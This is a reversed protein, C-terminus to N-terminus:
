VWICNGLRCVWNGFYFMDCDCYYVVVDDKGGLSRCIIDLYNEIKFSLNCLVIFFVYLGFFIGVWCCVCIVNVVINFVVVWIKFLCLYVFVDVFRMVFCVFMFILDKYLYKGFLFDIKVDSLCLSCWFCNLLIRCLIEKFVDLGGFFVIWLSSVVWIDVVNFCGFSIVSRLFLIGNLMKFFFIVCM